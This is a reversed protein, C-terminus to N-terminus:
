TRREYYGSAFNAAWFKESPGMIVTEVSNFVEILQALCPTTIKKSKQSSVWSAYNKAGNSYLTFFCNNIRASPFVASIANIMSNEFNVFFSNPSLVADTHDDAVNTSVLEKVTELM